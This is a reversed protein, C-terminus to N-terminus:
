APQAGKQILALPAYSQGEGNPLPERDELDRLEDLNYLGIERSTRYNSYRTTADVRILADANFKLYQPRPLLKRSLADEFKKLLPRITYTLFKITNQEVTSYTLSNGTEGGIMEPPINYIAAIQTANAKISDLFAVDGAPLSLVDFDWDKGYVFPKGNRIRESARDSLAEAEIPNLEKQVNKLTSGPVARSKSWNRNAAQAERSASFTEAFYRVRSVGLAKGPVSMAPVYLFEDAGIPRGDLWFKPVGREIDGTLRDPNIWTCGTPWLGAGSLLGVAGHNTLMSVFGRQIWDVPMSGDAPSDIVKTLSMPARTGDPKRTFQHLPLTSATESIINIAAFAPVISLLSDAGMSVTDDTVWPFSEATLARSERPATRLLSM